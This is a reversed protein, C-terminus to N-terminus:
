LRLASRPPALWGANGAALAQHKGAPLPSLGAADSPELDRLARRALRAQADPRRIGRAANRRPSVSTRDRRPRTRDAPEPAAPDARRALLRQPGAQGRRDRGRRVGGEAPGGARGG